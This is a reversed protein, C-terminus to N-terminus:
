GRRVVESQAPIFTEVDQESADGGLVDYSTRLLAEREDVALRELAFRVAANLSIGRREAITRLARLLPEPLRVTLTRTPADNSLM